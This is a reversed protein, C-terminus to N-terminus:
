ANASGSKNGSSSRKELPWFCSTMRASGLIARHIFATILVVTTGLWAAGFILFITM